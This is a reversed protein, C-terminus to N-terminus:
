IWVVVVKNHVPLVVLSIEHVAVVNDVVLMQEKEHNANSEPDIVVVADVLKENSMLLDFRFPSHLQHWKPREAKNKLASKNRM